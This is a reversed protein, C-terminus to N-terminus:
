FLLFSLIPLFPLIVLSLRVAFPVTQANVASRPKPANAAVLTAASRNLSVACFADLKGFGPSSQIKRAGSPSFFSSSSSFPREASSETAATPFVFGGLALILALMMCLTRKM